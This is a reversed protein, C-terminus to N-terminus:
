THCHMVHPRITKLHTESSQSTSTIGQTSPVLGSCIHLISAQTCNSKRVTLLECAVYHRSVVILVYQGGQCPIDSRRRCARVDPGPAQSSASEPNYCPIPSHNQITQTHTLTWSVPQPLRKADIPTKATGTTVHPGYGFQADHPTKSLTNM